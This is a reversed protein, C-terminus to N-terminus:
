RILSATISRWSTIFWRRTFSWAGHFKQGVDEDREHESTERQESQKRFMFVLLVVFRRVDFAFVPWLGTAVVFFAGRESSLM